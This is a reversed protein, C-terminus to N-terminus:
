EGCCIIRASGKFASRSHSQWNIIRRRMLEIHDSDNDTTQNNGEMVKKCKAVVWLFCEGDNIQLLTTGLFCWLIALPASSHISGLSEFRNYEIGNYLVVVM